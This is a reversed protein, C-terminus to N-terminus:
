SMKAVCALWEPSLADADLSLTRGGAFLLPAAFTTPNSFARELEGIRNRGPHKQVSMFRISIPLM